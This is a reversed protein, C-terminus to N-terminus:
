IGWVEEMDTISPDDYRNMTAIWEPMEEKIRKKLDDLDEKSIQNIEFLFTYFKKLSAANSKIQAPSSWLAKRIFWYGLFMGISSAGDKAKIADEYLLFENIYFDINDVHRRITNDKLKSSKLWTGFKSLLKNNAKRIRKCDYEYKEYDSM